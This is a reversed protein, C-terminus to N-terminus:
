NFYGFHVLAKTGFKYALKLKSIFDKLDSAYTIVFQRAASLQQYNPKEIIRGTIMKTIGLKKEM